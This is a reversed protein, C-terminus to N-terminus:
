KYYGSAFRIFSSPLGGPKGHKHVFYFQRELNLAPIEIVRFKGESLEQTISQVSLFGICDNHRLFLKISETSGLHLLINLQNLSIKKKNLAKEIIDLTGSGRERLVVPIKKLERLSLEDRDNLLKNGSSVVAVLEDKIFPIYKLQRHSTTGEVLGVDIKGSFIAEEIQETNGNLMVPNVGPFKSIFKALVPPLVYQAITTSAGIRLPGSLKKRGASLEYSLENYLSIIRGAYDLFIRGENTLVLGGRNRDFLRVGLNEELERVNKSVAPQSIHLEKAAETFNLKQASIYFVRLRFDVM